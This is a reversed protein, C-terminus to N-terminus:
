NKLPVLSGSLMLETKKKKLAAESDGAAQTPKAKKDDFSLKHASLVAQRSMKHKVSKWGPDKGQAEQTAVSESSAAALYARLQPDDDEADEASAAVSPPIDNAAPQPSYLGRKVAEKAEQPETDRGLEANIAQRIGSGWRHMETEAKKPEKLASSVRMLREEMVIEIMVNEGKKILRMNTIDTVKYSAKTVENNADFYSLKGNKLTFRRKQWKGPNFSSASNQKLLFGELRVGVEQKVRGWGRSKKITEEHPEPQTSSAPEPEPGDPPDLSEPQTSQAKLSAELRLAAEAMEARAVQEQLLSGTDNREREELHHIRDLLSAVEGEAAEARAAMEDLIVGFEKREEAAQHQESRLLGQM